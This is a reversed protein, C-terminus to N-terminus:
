MNYIAIITLIDSEFGVFVFRGVGFMVGSEADRWRPLEIWMLAGDVATQSTRVLVDVHGFHFEKTGRTVITECGSEGDVVEM